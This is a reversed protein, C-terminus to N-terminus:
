PGASVPKGPIKIKIKKIWNKTKANTRSSTLFYM